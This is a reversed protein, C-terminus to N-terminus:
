RVEHSMELAYGMTDRDYTVAQIGDNTAELRHLVFDYQDEALFAEHAASICEYSHTTAFVQVNAQRAAKAIAQWVKVLVSYHLGNEIEDILVVGGPSNAIALSISLLRRMGEGMFYVPVLEGLEIDGHIVARHAFPLLALRKLRPELLQLIPLIEGQRNTKDLNGFFDNDKDSAIRSSQLFVNRTEPKIGPPRNAEVHVIGQKTAISLWELNKDSEKYRLIIRPFPADPRTASMWVKAIITEVEPPVLSPALIGRLWISLDRNAGQYDQSSIEITQSPRNCYFLWSALEDLSNSHEKIGRSENLGVPLQCDYPNCHLHIAELLSTKGTNNKGAILNVRSLPGLKLGSFCRFNKIVVSQFM